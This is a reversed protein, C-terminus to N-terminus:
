KSCFTVTGEKSLVFNKFLLSVVTTCSTCLIVSALVFVGPRLSFWKVPCHTPISLSFYTMRQRCDSGGM